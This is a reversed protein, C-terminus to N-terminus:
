SALKDSREDKLANKEKKLESRRHLEDTYEYIIGRANEAEPTLDTLQDLQLKDITPMFVLDVLEIIDFIRAKRIEISHKNFGPIGTGPMKFGVLQNLSAIVMASPDIKFAEIALNCYFEHHRGEDGAVYGMIKPGGREKDLMKGTNRHSVQTALEQFGTYILLEALDPPEPVKGGKMQIMRSDELEVPNIARTALVWDRIVASHRWEEATWQKTWASFPHDEGLHSFLTHTYYPLNDETLLNVFIASRVGQSLPYEDPSWIYDDKFTQASDYPVLEHPYWSKKTIELHHNLLREAPAAM